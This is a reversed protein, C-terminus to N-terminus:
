RGLSAVVWTLARLMVDAGAPDELMGGYAYTVRQNAIRVRHGERWVAVMAECAKATLLRRARAEDSCKVVFAEDFAPVGVAIDQAGFFCAARHVLHQEDVFLDGLWAPDYVSAEARWVRTSHEDGDSDRWTEEAEWQCFRVRVGDLSTEMRVEPFLGEHTLGHKAAYHAFAWTREPDRATDRSFLGMATVM